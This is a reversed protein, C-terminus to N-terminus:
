LYHKLNRELANIVANKAYEPSLVRAHEGFSLVYGLVWSDWIYPLTVLYSGDAERKVWAEEFEDFVRFGQSADLCLVIPEGTFSINESLAISFSELDYSETFTGVVKLARIRNLKFLRLQKKYHCYGKLYWNKEKFWLTLPNVTRVHSAGERSHYNFELTEKHLIAHKIREFQEKKTNSWDSYDIEIWHLPEATGFSAGLKHLLANADQNQVAAFSQLASLIDAQETPTLISKNLVYNPLLEIGGGKGRSMYIPIGAASLAEVDRYITRISVEFHSALAEATLRKKQLLLHTIEFLRSIQM